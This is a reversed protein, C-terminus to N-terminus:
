GKLGWPAKDWAGERHSQGKFGAVLQPGIFINGDVIGM